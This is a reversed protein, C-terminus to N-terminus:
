DSTDGMNEESTGAAGADAAETGADAAQSSEEETEEETFVEEAYDSTQGADADAAFVSGPVSGIVLMGALIMATIRKTLKSM